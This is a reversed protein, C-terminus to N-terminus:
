RGLAGLEAVLNARARLEWGDLGLVPAYIASRDLFSRLVASRGTVWDVDSVRRYERRVNRVYDSYGAPDAALVSLDAAYLLATDVTITPDVRHHTTGEIMTVVRAIREDPWGLEGLASAALVASAAENDSATPDYIVDHFFAAAIISGLDEIDDRGDALARAQRVVWRVHRVDHYHRQVEHHRAVVSEYWGTAADGTGVHQDWAIRLELDGTTM